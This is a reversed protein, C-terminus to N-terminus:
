HRSFLFKIVYIQGFFHTHLRSLTTPVVVSGLNSDRDRFSIKREESVDQGAISGM